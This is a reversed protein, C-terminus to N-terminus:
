RGVEPQRERVRDKKPQRAIQQAMNRLQQRSLQGRQPQSLQSERKSAYEAFAKKFNETRSTSFFVHYTPPNTLSDRRLAFDVDYKKATSLFDRINNDSIEISELKGGSKQSLQRVSMRGKKEAKGSLIDQMASKLIDSSLKDKKISIDIVKKALQEFDGAM